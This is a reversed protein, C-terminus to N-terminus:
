GSVEDAKVLKVTRVRGCVKALSSLPLLGTVTGKLSLKDLSDSFACTDLRGLRELITPDNMNTM